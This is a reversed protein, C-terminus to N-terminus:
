HCLRCIPYASHLWNFVFWTQFSNKSYYIGWSVSGALKLEWMQLKMENWTKTIWLRECPLFFDNLHSYFFVAHGFMWSRHMSSLYDDKEHHNACWAATKGGRSWKSSSTRDMKNATAAAPLTFIQPRQTSSKINIIIYLIYLVCRYSVAWVCYCM